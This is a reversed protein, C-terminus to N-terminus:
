SPPLHKISLDVFSSLPVGGGRERQMRTDTLPPRAKLLLQNNILMMQITRNANRFALDHDDGRPIVGGEWGLLPQQRRGAEARVRSGAGGASLVLGRCCQSFEADSQSTRTLFEWDSSYLSVIGFDKNKHM